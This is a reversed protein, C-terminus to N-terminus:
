ARAPRPDSRANRRRLAITALAWAVALPLALEPAGDRAVTCGGGGGGGGGGEVAVAAITTMEASAAPAPAAPAPAAPAPAAATVAAAADVIGAGCVLPTCSASPFARATRVLLARLEAATLAPNVSLVLAAVGSVHAAAESTGIAFAFGDAAPATRGANFLSLIGNAANTSNAAFAGGPAALAVNAGISAYPARAGSRDTATVAIV